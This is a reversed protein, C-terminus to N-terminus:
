VGSATNEADLVEELRAGDHAAAHTGTWGRILGHRRHISAHNKYGYAQVALDVQPAGDERPKAKSFKVTWRADRDKQRRKALKEAWGGPIQGAKIATREAETNRQRPAALITADVIQGGM